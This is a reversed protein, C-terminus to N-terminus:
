SRSFRTLTKGSLLGCYGCFEPRPGTFGDSKFNARSMVLSLVGPTFYVHKCLELGEVTTAASELPTWSVSHPTLVAYGKRLIVAPQGGEECQISRACGSM